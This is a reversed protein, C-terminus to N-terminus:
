TTKECFRFNALQAFSPFGSVSFHGSKEKLIVMVQWRRGAVGSRGLLLPGQLAMLRVDIPDFLQRELHRRMFRLRLSHPM